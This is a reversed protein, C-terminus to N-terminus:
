PWPTSRCLERRSGKRIPSACAESGRLGGLDFMDTGSSIAQVFRLKGALDILGNHWMGSIVLVDAEGVHRDLDERKSVGFSKIGTNRAAFRAQFDYASHAFCITLKDKAPISGLGKM